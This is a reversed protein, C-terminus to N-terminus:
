YFCLETKYYLTSFFQQGSWVHESYASWGVTLLDPTTGMHTTPASLLYSKLYIVPLFVLLKLM